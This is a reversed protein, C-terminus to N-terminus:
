ASKLWSHREAASPRWVARGWWLGWWLSMTVFVRRRQPTLKWSPGGILWSPCPALLIGPIPLHHATIAQLLHVSVRWCNSSVTKLVNIKSCNFIIHFRAWLGEGHRQIENFSTVDPVHSLGPASGASITQIVCTALTKLEERGGRNKWYQKFVSSHFFFLFLFKIPTM